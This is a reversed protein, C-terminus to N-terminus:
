KQVKEFNKCEKALAELNVPRVPPRYTFTVIDGLPLGLREALIKAILSRCTKGQCLGMGARTLKKIADPTTAENKIAEVIERESVEECRCVIEDCSDGM